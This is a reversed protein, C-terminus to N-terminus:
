IGRHLFEIHAGQSARKMWLLDQSFNFLIPVDSKNYGLQVNLTLTKLSSSNALIFRILSMVHKFNTGVKINVTMLQSLCCSSCELEEARGAAQTKYGNDHYTELVLEVLNSANKLVSVIYLLEGREDLNVHDLKLYRLNILQSPHIIGAYLMKSGFGMTLRQIKPLIKNLSSVGDQNLVLTLDILNKAKELCISKIAQIHKIGIVKAQIHEIGLVKLTPASLEICEYGFCSVIYLEELLPSGSILRELAGYEFTICKFHFHVLSKFGCFNPPVLLKFNCLRVHTLEQFSFFHSPMRCHEWKNTTLEIFKVGKRSLFLIWKVIYGYTINFGSPVFLTFKNIPGNHLFLVETIIICVEPTHDKFDELDYLDFFEQDFELRPFSIWIDRWKRSLISTRALDRINLHQLIGDIVNSPLDSIRDLHDDYNAKKNSLTM